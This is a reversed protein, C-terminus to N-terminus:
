VPEIYYFTNHPLDGSNLEYVTAMAEKYSSFKKAKGVAVLEDCDVGCYGNAKTGTRQVLTFHLKAETLETAQIRYFKTLGSPEVSENLTKFKKLCAVCVDLLDKAKDDGKLGPLVDDEIYKKLKKALAKTKPGTRALKMYKECIVMSANLWGPTNYTNGKDKAGKALCAAIAEDSGDTKKCDHWLDAASDSGVVSYDMFGEALLGENLSFETDGHRKVKFRAARFLKMLGTTADKDVGVVGIDGDEDKMDAPYGKVVNRGPKLKGGIFAEVNQLLPKKPDYIVVERAEAFYAQYPKFAESVKGVPIGISFKGAVPQTFTWGKARGDKFAADIFKNFNKATFSGSGQDSDAFKGNNCILEITGDSGNKQEVNVNFQQKIAAEIKDAAARTKSKDYEINEIVFAESVKETEIKKLFAELERWYGVKNTKEDTWYDSNVGTSAIITRKTDPHTYKYKRVFGKAEIGPPHVYGYKTMIPYHWEGTVPHVVQDAKDFTIKDTM